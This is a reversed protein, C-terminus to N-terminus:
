SHYRTKSSLHICAAAQKERTNIASERGKLPEQNSIESASRQAESPKQLLIQSGHTLNNRRTLTSKRAPDRIKDNPPHKCPSRQLPASPWPSRSHLNSHRSFPAALKRDLQPHLAPLSVRAICSLDRHRLWNGAM